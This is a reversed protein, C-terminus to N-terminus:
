SWAGHSYCSYVLAVLRSQYLLRPYTSPVLSLDMVRAQATVHRQKLLDATPIEKSVSRQVIRVLVPRCHCFIALLSSKDLSITVCITLCMVPKSNLNYKCLNKVQQLPRFSPAAREQM